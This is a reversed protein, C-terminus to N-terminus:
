DGGRLAPVLVVAHQGKPLRGGIRWHGDLPELRVNWENSGDVAQVLRWGTASPAVTVVVDDSSHAPHLFRVRLPHGRDFDGNVPIVDVAGGGVRVVASLRHQQAYADPGLDAVQVQATRQVKDVIADDSGRNAIVVLGIGFVMSVLPLGVVLWLVPNRWPSNERPDM